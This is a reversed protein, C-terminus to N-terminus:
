TTCSATSLMVCVHLLRSSCLVRCAGKVLAYSHPKSTVRHSRFGPTIDKTNQQLFQAAVAVEVLQPPQQSRHQVVDSRQSVLVHGPVVCRRQLHTWLCQVDPLLSHQM